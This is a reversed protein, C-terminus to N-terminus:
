AKGTKSFILEGFYEPRHFDPQPCLVPNWSLFHPHATKDGCKYFNAKLSSPMKGAETGILSLPIVMAVGWNFIKGDEEYKRPELTSFRIIKNLIDKERRVRNERGPGVGNLLAGICNIEFNYYTGGEPNEVFFECCSDEWINGDDELSVARLDLGRVHFSVAFHTRSFGTSFFCDPQYPFAEPWNVNSISSKSGNQELSLELSEYDMNELGEIFPVILKKGTM